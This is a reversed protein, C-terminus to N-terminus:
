KGYRQIPVKVTRVVDNVLQEATIGNYRAESKLILRHAFVYPALFQIDDPIVYERGHLFAYAQAAKMIAISGRPSVGLYIHPHNRTRAVIHVIYEKITEDVFVSRIEKQYEQL